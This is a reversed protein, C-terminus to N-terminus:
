RFGFCTQMTVKLVQCMEEEDLIGDTGVIFSVEEGYLGQIL